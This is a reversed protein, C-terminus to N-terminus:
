ALLAINDHGRGFGSVQVGVDSAQQQSKLYRM